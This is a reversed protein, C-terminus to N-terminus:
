ATPNVYYPRTAFNIAQHTFHAYPFPLFQSPQIFDMKMKVVAM